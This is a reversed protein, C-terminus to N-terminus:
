LGDYSIRLKEHVQDNPIRELKSLVSTWEQKTRDFLYSGLVELALPLGGCYAAVSRSLESFGGKPSAKRFAHWSFLELSENKHMEEMKYVSVVKLLKLIHVDRTTVILVSGSGFCKNNGCLVKIQQFDTVDDLVVLAKKGSVVKQIRTTGLAISHIKEKTKLVDSLLQQQLHMHGRTDQECVERINEIFSTCDFRRHIENYVAKAVTTKGSGGMGWIGVICFNGAQKEILGVVQKVHSELGVPFETIPLTSNDLKPLIAEVIKNVLERDSR